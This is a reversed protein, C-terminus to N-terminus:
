ARDREVWENESDAILNRSGDWNVKFQGPSGVRNLAVSVDMVHEPETPDYAHRRNLMIAVDVDQEITGSDRLTDPTPMDGHAGDRSLQSLYIVAMDNEMAMLKFDRTFQSVEYYANRKDQVLLQLYDLCLVVHRGPHKAIITMIVSVLSQMGSPIDNPFVPYIDSDRLVERAEEYRDFDDQDVLVEEPTSNKYVIAKTHKQEIQAMTSLMKYMFDRHLTELSVFIIVPPEEEYAMEAVINMLMTTKGIKPRAAIVYNRGGEIGGGLCKDLESLGTSIQFTSGAEEKDLEDMFESMTVVEKAALHNTAARQLKRSIEVPPIGEEIIEKTIKETAYLMKRQSRSQVLSAVSKQLSPITSISANAQLQIVITEADTPLSEGAIRNLEDIVSADTIEDGLEVSQQIAKAVIRNQSVHFLSPIDGGALVELKKWWGIGEALCAGLVSSEVSPLHPISGNSESM